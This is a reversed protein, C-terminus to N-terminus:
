FSRSLSAGLGGSADVVPLAVWRDKPPDKSQHIIFFTIAGAAAAGAVGFGVYSWTRAREAQDLLREHDTIDKASCGRSSPCVKKADDNRAMYRLGMVTGVAAGGVSVAGLALATIPLGRSRTAPEAPRPKPAPNRPPAPAAAPAAKPQDELAELEPVEVTVLPSDLVVRKSWPKFGPAKAVIEYNGPDLAVAKGWQEAEIPMGDRKIRITKQPEPVEIVLRSLRPELAAARERLVQERESQGAAKASGAAGLFLAHASATRGIREWCDALNFQTGVGVELKLSAEFKPCAARYDGNAALERGENFLAKAPSEGDAAAASFATTVLAVACSASVASLKWRSPLM